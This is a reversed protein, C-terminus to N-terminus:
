TRRSVLWSLLMRRPTAAAVSVPSFLHPTRLSPSSLSLPFLSNPSPPCRPTYTTLTPHTADFTTYTILRTPAYIHLPESETISILHTSPSSISSILYSFCLALLSSIFFLLSCSLIVKYVDGLLDFLVLKSPQDHWPVPDFHSHFSHDTLSHFCLDLLNPQCRRPMLGSLLYAPFRSLVHSVLRIPTAYHYFCATNDNDRSM